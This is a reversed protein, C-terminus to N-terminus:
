IFFKPRLYTRCIANDILTAVVFELIGTQEIVEKFYTPLYWIFCTFDHSSIAVVHKIRQYLNCKNKM